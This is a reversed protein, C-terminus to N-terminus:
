EVEIFASHSFTVFFVLAPRFHIHDHRSPVMSFSMDFSFTAEWVRESGRPMVCNSKLNNKEEGQAWRIGAGALTNEKM